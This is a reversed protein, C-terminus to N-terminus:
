QENKVLRFELCRTECDKRRQEMHYDEPPNERIRRAERDASSSKCLYQMQYNSLWQEKLCETLKERINRM